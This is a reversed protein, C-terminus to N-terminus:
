RKVRNNNVQVMGAQNFVHWRCTEVFVTQMMTSVRRQRTERQLFQPCEGYEKIRNPRLVRGNLAPYLLTSFSV